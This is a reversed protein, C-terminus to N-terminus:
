RNKLSHICYQVVGFIHVETEEAIPISPFEPNEPALVAGEQLYRLTKVTFEGDVVAVVVDQDHPLASRDVVLIDEPYIGVGIMSEGQVRMLVTSNANEVLLENLNLHEEAYDSAPSPFGAPISQHFYPLSSANYSYM